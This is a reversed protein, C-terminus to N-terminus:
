TQYSGGGVVACRLHTTAVTPSMATRDEDERPVGRLIRRGRCTTTEDKEDIANFTCSGIM